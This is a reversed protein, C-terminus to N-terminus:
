FCSLLCNLFDQLLINRIGGNPNNQQGLLNTLLKDFEYHLRVILYRRYNKLDWRFLHTIIWLFIDNHLPGMTKQKSCINCSTMYQMYSLINFLKSFYLHIKYILKVSISTLIQNLINLICFAFFILKFLIKAFLRQFLM